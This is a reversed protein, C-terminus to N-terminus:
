GGGPRRSRVFVLVVGIAAAIVALVILLEWTM